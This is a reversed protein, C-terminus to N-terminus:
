DRKTRKARPTRKPQTRPGEVITVDAMNVGSVPKQPQVQEDEDTGIM